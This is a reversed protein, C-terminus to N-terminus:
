SFIMFFLLIFAPPLFAVLKMKLPMPRPVKWWLIGSFFACLFFFLVDAVNSIYIVPFIQSLIHTTGLWAVCLFSLMVAWILLLIRDIMM